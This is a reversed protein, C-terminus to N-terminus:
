AVERAESIDVIGNPEPEIAFYSKADEQTVLERYHQFLITPTSHGLELATKAADQHLALHYSAFSHRLDNSQRRDFSQQWSDTKAERYSVLPVVSGSLQARPRIWKALNPTIQVLRRRSSKANEATIEIHGRDIRVERWDLRLVEATRLGAFAQIALPAVLNEPANALWTKLEEPTLISVPKSVTKLNDVGDVPNSQAKELKIAVAFLNRLMRLVNNKSVPGVSLSDIYQQVGEQTIDTALHEEFALGFPILRSRLDRLYEESRNAKAKAEIHRTILDPVTVSQNRFTQRSVFDRAADALTGGFPALIKLAEMADLRHHTPMSAATVGHNHFEIELEEARVDAANKTPFFERKRKRGPVRIDVLWPKRRPTTSPYHRVSITAKVDSVYGLTM